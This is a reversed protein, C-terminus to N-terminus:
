GNMEGISYGFIKEAAANIFLITSAEDIVIIADSATEALSRFREADQQVHVSPMTEDADVASKERAAFKVQHQEKSKEM